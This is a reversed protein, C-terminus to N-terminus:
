GFFEKYYQSFEEDDMRELEKRMEREDEDPNNTVYWALYHITKEDRTM